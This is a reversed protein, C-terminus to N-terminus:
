ARLNMLKLTKIKKAKTLSNKHRSNDKAPVQFDLGGNIALVFKVQTLYTAPNFKIFYTFWPNKLQNLLTEDVKGDENGLFLSPRKM